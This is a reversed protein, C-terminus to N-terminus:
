LNRLSASFFLSDLRQRVFFNFRNDARLCLQPILEKGFMSGMPHQILVGPAAQRRCEDGADAVAFNDTRLDRQEAPAEPIRRVIKPHTWIERAKVALVNELAMGDDAGADGQHLRRLVCATQTWM